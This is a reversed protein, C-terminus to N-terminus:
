ATLLTFRFTAGGDPNNEAWIRGGHAEVITRSIALGMGMGKAKTSYFPEFVKTLGDAPIGHGCDRVSLEVTGDGTRDARVVLRRQEAPCGNLSDMGNLMLNLLVQELHVRDGRVRPLNSAVETEVKVQRVLADPKTMAVAEEILEEVAVVKLELERRSLLARMRRIVDAARQDDKRIDALIARLERLDPQDNELFLEAAEANSLIAGLPQNLEHALSTALEGMTSVRAIHALEARQRAAELEAQLRETVDRMIGTFLRREGVRSEAFSIELSIERGSKHLGSFSVADWSLLKVGTELYRRMGEEHRQRLPEPMLATIKRGVLESSSYGFVRAVASNVFLITSNQDMTVIVDTATEALTRYREESQRLVEEARKRETIDICSGIYGLFTGNSEFRPVGSDLIWCYEGDFRRLRYEMAFEQRADFSNIYVELCRDLDERHVGEAWGNGLEQEMARGTFDIWGKNFFTCLKDTGSMWIMVPATNAVVRFRAESERLAEEARKRDTIDLSVSRMHIPKRRADYEVRGRAAIWRMSGDSLVVRYEFRYDGGSELARHVAERTPERDDPHLTEIFRDLSIAESEGWSFLARDEQTVWIEDRAVDWMWLGLRGVDAALSMREESESLEAQAQRRRARQFVFGGILVAQVLIITLAGIIYWRYQEWVSQPKFRVTSGPPLRSESIGWRKLERWDYVPAGPGLPPTRISGASEGNMIGNAVRATEFGAKQIPILAGGVIGEGLQNDFAGFIPANSETHLVQLAREQQHPVGAADVVLAAYLIASNPQLAALRKRMEEFSLENLWVFNVRGTFPQFERRLEALWFKELPSNGLVVAINKTGPLVRLINEVIASLELRMTVSTSNAGLNEDRVRRQDAGGILMPTGPFLRARYRQMFHAAPAGFPAVLDLKRNALLARLYEVFPRESEGETVRATELSAESFEVPVPSQRALETRFHSAVASFPAFDRGFSHLILVRRVQPAEAASM